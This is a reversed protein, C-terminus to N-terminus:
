QILEELVNVFMFDKNKNQLLVGLRLSQMKKLIMSLQQSPKMAVSFLGFNKV